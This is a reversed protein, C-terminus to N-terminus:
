PQPKEVGCRPGQIHLFREATLTPQVCRECIMANCEDDWWKHAGKRGCVFCEGKLPKAIHRLSSRHTGPIM